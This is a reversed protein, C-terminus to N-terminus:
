YKASSHAHVALTPRVPLKVMISCVAPERVVDDGHGEDDDKEALDGTGVDRRDGAGDASGTRSECEYRQHLHMHM